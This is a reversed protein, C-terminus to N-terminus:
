DYKLKSAVVVDNGFTQRKTSVVSFGSPADDVSVGGEGVTVPATTVILHEPIRSRLFARIVSAGGEVMLRRIGRTYLVDVVADLCLGGDNGTPVVIVLVGLDELEKRKDAPHQDGTFVWPLNGSAILRATTPMQLHSDLVIPQPHSKHIESAPLLRVNLRPDDCLVTNIGVLIADHMARLRHTMMMSEAGSLILQENHKAIMCDQSQAYTVTVSVGKDASFAIADHLFAKAQDFIQQQSKEHSSSDAM